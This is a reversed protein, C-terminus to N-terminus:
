IRMKILHYKKEFKHRTNINANKLEEKEIFEFAKFSDKLISHIYKEYIKSKKGLEIYALYEIRQNSRETGNINMKAFANSLFLFCLEKKLKIDKLNSKSNIFITEITNSYTSM